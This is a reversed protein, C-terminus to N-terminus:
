YLLATRGQDVWVVSLIKSALKSEKSPKVVGPSTVPCCEACVSFFGWLLATNVPVISHTCFGSPSGPLVAGVGATIYGLSVHLAVNMQPEKSAFPEHAGPHQRITQELSM